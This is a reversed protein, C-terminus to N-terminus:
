DTIQNVKYRNFYIAKKYKEMPKSKGIGYAKLKFGDRNERLWDSHFVLTMSNGTSQIPGPLKMGCLRSGIQKKDAGRGDYVALYDNCTKDLFDVNQLDFSEFQILVRQKEEFTITLECDSFTPYNWGGFGPSVITTGSTTVVKASSSSEYVKCSM